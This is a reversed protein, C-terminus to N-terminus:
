KDRKRAINAQVNICNEAANYGMKRDLIVAATEVIVAFIPIDQSRSLMLIVYSRVLWPVLAHLLEETLGLRDYEKDRDWEESPDGSGCSQTDKVSECWVANKLM